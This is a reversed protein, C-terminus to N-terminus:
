KRLKNLAAEAAAQEAKRRSSGEGLVGDPLKKPVVCKVVFERQHDAGKTDVIEYLPLEVQSKQVWEQLQSKADKVRDLPQVVKLRDDYWRRVCHQATELTDDLSIAAILAEVADSLISPKRHGGSKIEGQGLILCEGLSWGEAIEALTSECVLNSRTRSLVGEDVNPMLQYLAEAVTLGLIADGLFELRENNHAGVSRHSLAQMLLGQDKFQYGLKAQLQQYKIELPTNIM